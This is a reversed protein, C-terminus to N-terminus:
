FVEILFEDEEKKVLEEDIYLAAYCFTTWRDKKLKSGKTPVFKHFNGSPTAQINTVEKKVMILDLYAMEVEKEPHKDFLTPMIFHGKEIYSKALHGMRHNLETNAAVFTILKIGDSRGSDKPLIPPYKQGTEFDMWDEALFDEMAQGGGFKDMWLDIVDFNVLFKRIHDRIVQYPQGNLGMQRVIALRSGRIECLKLSANDGGESRAIDAFLVYEKGGQGHFLPELTDDYKINKDWLQAGIFANENGVIWKCGMEMEFDDNSMKRRQTEVYKENFLHVSLPIEYPVVACYYDEDFAMRHLHQQFDVYSHNFQFYASTASVITPQYGEQPNEPDYKLNAAAMPMIVREILMKDQQAHEDLFIYTTREGRISNGDGVPLFKSTSDNKLKIMAGMSGRPKEIVEYKFSYSKNYIDSIIKDYLMLSQRYSPGFMLIAEDGYLMMRLVCLIAMMFSKGAGRSTCWYINKSNWAGLLMIKQYDTLALGLLDYVAEVPHERYFEIMDFAYEDFLEHEMNLIENVEDITVFEDYWDAM